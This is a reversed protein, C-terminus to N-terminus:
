FKLGINFGYSRSPPTQATEFGVGNGTLAPGSVEPDAWVNDDPLWFKVNKAAFGITLGKIPTNELFKTPLTYSLGIERLKVYSADVIFSSAPMADIYDFVTTETTNESFTGDPNEVVTNPLVLDQRDNYLTTVATGNFETYFKSVSAFNGGSKVDFLINFSLGKYGIDTGISTTFDPQYSGFYTEEDADIPLGDAGVVLQGADNYKWDLAKFAGFPLGEKAVIQVGRWTNFSLEDIDDAVKDVNSNNKAFIYNISWSFDKVGKIPKLGVSLEHGKNTIQGINSATLSFGSSYPLNVSVIQDTHKSQYYTYELDLRNEFLTMDAGAEYTLTLEPKLTPNGISNDVTIGAQGNLPFTLDYGGGLAQLGPNALFTSELLYIGADKGTTGINGRVKLYNLWRNNQLASIETLIVSLGGAQYFFSNNDSPLTSSWDNRASYEVFIMNRWGFSANAFVGYIRRKSSAQASEAAQVSNSLNYFEPIILGGVTSGQLTQTQRQFFNYGATVNVSYDGNSGFDKGYTALTSLDLNTNVGETRTYSGVDGHRGTRFETSLNDLWVYHDGYQYQPVIETLTRGVVNAGVRATIDLGEIPTMTVGFKGFLNNIEGTNEHTALIFYPNVTYTGYYGNFDHFPSDYNRLDTYPINVPAQIANAYANVGEFARGGESAAKQNIHSYAVSFDTRIKEHLQASANLNFSNRKYDTNPTTGKQYTNAYSAYYTFLGKNGSFSVGNTTTLGVDFFDELQNPVASFPRSLFEFDGDGDSDVPSTWPRVVGDFEPGWSWNEGTDFAPDEGPAVFPRTYGQGYKDQRQLLVYAKEFSTSHNIGISMGGDKGGGGKKTTVVLVGSAGRSGYLSTAAPGKLMTLSAIDDPNLDNFRNGFDIYGGEEGSGTGRSPANDIPIGDIVILVNNNGTLSSEGRAVIRTSAGVAGSGKQIKVGALKGQLADLATKNPVSILDEAGITQNAYVVERANREISLATVVVEDLLGSELLTLNMTSSTVLLEQTQFGVYSFVLTADSAVQLSYNGDLDTVTGNTTGKEVINVGILSEGGDDTVTGSVTMQAMVQASMFLVGLFLLFLSKKM